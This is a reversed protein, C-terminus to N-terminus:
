TSTRNLSQLTQTEDDSALASTMKDHPASRCATNHRIMSFQLGSCQRTKEPLGTNRYVFEKVRQVSSSDAYASTVFSGWCVV